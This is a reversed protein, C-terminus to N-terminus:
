AAQEGFFVEYWVLFCYVSWIKKMSVSSGSRHAELMELLAERKFFRAATESAFCDRIRQYYQEQRMWDVLPTIFGIKPMMASKKPLVREAARRLAIKTVDKTVRYESPIQVALKLVERDLFPVRLELSAAMSMRDAKLLIDHQMWTCIDVYQMRTVEDQGAVKDFYPKTLTEPPVVHSTDKLISGLETYHYNYNNRIYRKELPVRGRMLFRRGHFNPLKEAVGGAIKRLFSPVKMYKEFDLCEKYYNYGGFLEDAGEGSLVVKVEKAAMQTLYYLPIASPNPLPEDMHYQVAPVADFFEDATIERTICEVGIKEALEKAHALESYKQEAYGISFARVPMDDRLLRTVYSSDVGSSLFCGVEVDSICHAKCSARFVEEIEDMWQEMTKGSKIDYRLDFYREVTMEGGKATFCCGAPLKRVNKFLTEDNPIYEFCLYTPLWKEDFEKRFNPHPLLGKIESGYVLTGGDRYYYFPKIGFIDRAGFLTQERRDYIVFAFMGRLKKPLEKGWEEYGHLLVETDTRTSFVHGKSILEERLTQFNYIEGNFTIVLNQDENYIPQHGGELDIISLRRFGMGVKNECFYGDSDPGRHIIKDAMAHIVTEASYNIAEDLFGVFGCM